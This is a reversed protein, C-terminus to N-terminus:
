SWVDPALSPLLIYIYEMSRFLSPRPVIYPHLTIYHLHKTIEGVIHTVASDIYVVTIGGYAM